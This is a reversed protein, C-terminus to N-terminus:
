SPDSPMREVLLAASWASQHFACIAQKERRTCGLLLKVEADRKELDGTCVGADLRGAPLSGWWVDLATGDSGSTGKCFLLETPPQRLDQRCRSGCSYM